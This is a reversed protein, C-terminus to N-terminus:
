ACVTSYTANSTGNGEYSSCLLYDGSELHIYGGEWYKEVFKDLRKRGYRRKINSHIKEKRSLRLKRLQRLGGFVEQYDKISSIKKM